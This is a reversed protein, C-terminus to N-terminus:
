TVCYLDLLSARREYSHPWVLMEGKCSRLLVAYTDVYTLEGFLHRCVDWLEDHRPGALGMAGM